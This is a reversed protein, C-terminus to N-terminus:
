LEFLCREGFGTEDVPALDYRIEAIRMSEDDFSALWEAESGEILDFCNANISGVGSGYTLPEFGRHRASEILSEADNSITDNSPGISDDVRRALVLLTGPKFQPLAAEPIQKMADTQQVYRMHTKADSHGALTMATQVNMGISALATNFARRFSHFDVPLSAETEFYLPDRPNPALKTGKALKGRDTRTGPSDSVRSRYTRRRRLREDRRVRDRRARVRARREQPIEFCMVCRARTAFRWRM